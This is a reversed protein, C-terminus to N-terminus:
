ENAVGAPVPTSPPRSLAVPGGLERVLALYKRLHAEPTWRRRYAELSERGWRDRLSRDDLLRDLLRRLDEESTFTAGGSGEVMEPLAGLSRVLAPTGQQAAEMIVLPGCEYWLSPVVLAVADRYLSALRDHPLSGRIEIHDVDRTARRLSEMESGDGIVVLRARRYSRFAEVLEGVGKPPELRGVYLFYPEDSGPRRHAGNATPRPVPGVFNPIHRIDGELGRERHISRTFRSPAIFADVSGAARDLIGTFRWPQVPRRHALSCRVCRPRQCPVGDYRFLTHMPCLLWYEHLTYLKIASGYSLVDPGGVLSVNHFHIVDFDRELIEKLRRHKLGPRGTQHTVVPSVPGLSSELRHVRVRPHNRWADEVPEDRAFLRYADLCHVVDVSHGRRALEDSLAHVVVADGGFHYPPYFTTVMCFRLPRVHPM